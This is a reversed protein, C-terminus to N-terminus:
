GEGRGREWQALPTVRERLIACELAAELQDTAREWTYPAVTAYATDSLTRWETESMRAIDLMARAMAASDNPPVLIGGREIVIKEGGAPTGIVPTRCAMAELPPAAFGETRSGFLWADCRAYLERLLPQPPQKTYVTGPPLAFNPRPNSAGFSVIRLEPIQQRALAIADFIVDCGKWHLHSYMFGFTPVNQKGRPPADFLARDLGLTILISNPDRYQERMVTQLWPAIVIKQFPLRYVAAVREQPLYDFVEHHQILHVKVGKSPALAAVWEATEWWTAIVVDADPLDASTVPRYKDLLKRPVDLADFHSARVTSLTQGKRLARLHERLTPKRRPPSILLIQHGRAQLHKSWYALTREGGALSFGSALVFTIRM